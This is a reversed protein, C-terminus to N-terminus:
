DFADFVKGIIKDCGAVDSESICSYSSRSEVMELMVTGSCIGEIVKVKLLLREM